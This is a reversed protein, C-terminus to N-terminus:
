TKLYKENLMKKKKEMKWRYSFLKRGLKRMFVIYM